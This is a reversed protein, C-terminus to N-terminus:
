WGPALNFGWHAGKEPRQWPYAYYAELIMFGLINFRAGVGTSWLPVRQSNSRVFSWDEVPNENDWAVGVDTFAMLEMPIYPLTILGFQETGIFPVRLEFNAVGIRQGFLRDFAPCDGNTATGCEKQNFSEWSYGRIFTEYGLFIPNIWQNNLLEESYNYRGYHLGRVAFTLNLNPSYYRRWDLIATQYRASGFTQEIEFRSRGGRVPSTFAGFSNDSVLAISATVLNLPDPEQEDLQTRRQGIIRGFADYIIEDQEIDFSYRTFGLDAELRRTLSFPYAVLGSFSDLFIRQRVTNLSNYIQGDVETVGYGYYLYQYPTRGAAYGWNWRNKQNLYFVQGGIDKLTGQASLAVGLFRDGLMDSFYASAGGGIYTGFNDAAVGVTPQGIFDLALSSKYEEADEVVYTQPPELGTDYDALYSEVRSQTVPSAPPLNRGPGPETIAVRVARKNAEEQTLKYIHFEFEDFVSFALDGTKQAMTMAPASWTIGSVATAINTIRDILGTELEIRYINSFGDVDAIFYLHRGDPSFQPNIHKVKPGFIDLERIEGTELDLLALQFKAYSLRVFDTAPSRDSTFAILRGDPSFTPQFDANKDETLRTTTESAVNYLFLDTIGGKSGSLVLNEGDPSWSPGQMAGMGEISVRKEVDGDGADVLVMQNDGDAFVVYALRTGDWSWAGSSDTFRLADFHPDAAANSLTREVEGTSADALFLDFSFLDKESMYVLREGDPSMAPALNQSGSGTSPSLLLDGVESPAERGEMLPLYEERIRDAWRASLTDSDIGFVQKLSPEWGMRLSRRFLTIVAEDGFEGGVFAWLAQGFRYPFYRRERTMQKITPIDDRRAADRLWMATLPDDRGVSLYEAMGEVLWGQLRSLGQIGTGQRSQAINYQFAHVLEHGLVHDTDQYSGTMPMIVRNKLSETVGGTGEGMMGQLTNTQQFDPHDAYLVLPKAKEFEHQFLRAFREYWREAMRAVDEIVVGAEPYYHIDFHPTELVEFDFADYQVKNRGFYQAELPSAVALLLVMGGLIGWRLGPQVKQGNSPSFRM